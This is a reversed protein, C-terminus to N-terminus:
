TFFRGGDINGMDFFGGYGGFGGAGGGSGIVGSSGSSGGGGGGMGAQGAFGGVKGVAAPRTGFIRMLRRTRNNLIGQMASTRDSEARAEEIERRAKTEPDEIPASSKTKM